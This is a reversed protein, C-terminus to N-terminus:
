RRNAAYEGIRSDEEMIHTVIWSNLFAVVEDPTVTAYLLRDRFDNVRKILISHLLRHEELHPYGLEKMYKEEDAFHYITYSKLENFVTKLTEEGKGVTMAHILSNSFSILKKHQEDLTPLGINLAKEWDIQVM